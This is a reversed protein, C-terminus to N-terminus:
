QVEDKCVVLVLMREGRFALESCWPWTNFMYVYYTYKMCEVEFSRDRM